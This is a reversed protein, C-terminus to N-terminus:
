VTKKAKQYPDEEMRLRRTEATVLKEGMYRQIDSIRQQREDDKKYFNQARSSPKRQYWSEQGDLESLDPQVSVM